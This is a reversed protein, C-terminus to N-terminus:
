VIDEEFEICNDVLKKSLLSNFFTTDDIFNLIRKREFLLTDTGLEDAQYFDSDQFNILSYPVFLAHNPKNCHFKYYREYRRTETLKKYWEKGCACQCFLSFHNSVNDSFSIWGVIDLGREQNGKASIKKLFNDDINVKLDKALNTIKEIATGTYESNKGFSKVTAHSPLYKALTHFCVLEFESTLESEFIGFVNLSSALLLFIYLKNKDTLQAMGKLKIKNNGLMEYPYDEIYLYERENLVQFISDIWQENKDNEVAQEDDKKKQTIILEDRFRDLIDSTSVYNQNSFLSVIEVYDAYIHTLHEAPKDSLKINASAFYDQLKNEFNM